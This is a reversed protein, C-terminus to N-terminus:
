GVNENEEILKADEFKVINVYGAPELSKFGEPWRGLYPVTQGVKKAYWMLSDSCKEILLVQM